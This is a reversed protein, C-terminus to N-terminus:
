FLDAGIENAFVLHEDWKLEKFAIVGRALDPTWFIIGSKSDFIRIQTKSHEIVAKTIACTIEFAPVLYMVYGRVYDGDIFKSAEKSTMGQSETIHDTLVKVLYGTKKAVLRERETKEIFFSNVSTESEFNFRKGGANAKIFIWMMSNDKFNVRGTNGYKGLSGVRTVGEYGHIYTRLAAEM